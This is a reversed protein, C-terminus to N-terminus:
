HNGRYPKPPNGPVQAPRPAAPKGSIEPPPPVGYPLIPVRLEKKEKDNTKFVITEGRPPPRYFAPITLEYYFTNPQERETRRKPVLRPDSATVELIEFPESGNNVIRLPRKQPERQNGDVLMKPPGIEIRGPLYATVDLDYYPSEPINTKFRLKASNSGERYPPAATLYLKFEEGPKTEKLVASFPSRSPLPTAELQLKRGSTNIITIERTERFDPRIRQFHNAGVPQIKAVTRVEGTIHLTHSSRNRENTVVVLDKLIRGRLHDTSLITPLKGVEGPQILRQYDPTLTCSCTPKFELIKLLETGANKVLFAHEVRQGAWVSGFDFKPQECLFVPGAAPASAAPASAAPQTAAVQARAAVVIWSALAASMAIALWVRAARDGRM